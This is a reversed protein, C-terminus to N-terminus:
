WVCTSYTSIHTIQPVFVSLSGRGFHLLAACVPFAGTRDSWAGTYTVSLVPNNIRQLRDSSRHIATLLPLALLSHLSDALKLVFNASPQQIVDHRNQYSTNSCRGLGLAPSCFPPHQLMDCCGVRYIYHGGRKNIRQQIPSTQFFGTDYPNVIAILMTIIGASYKM